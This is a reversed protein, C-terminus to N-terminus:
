GSKDVRLFMQCGTPDFAIRASAGSLGEALGLFTEETRLVLPWDLWYAMYTRSANEVHYNGVALTGGPALLDWLRALVARAVPGTLYDFLGMSYVFQFRGLREGLRRDKLMTRVSEDVLTARVPAGHAAAVTAATARAADLALPDQDLLTCELDRVDAASGFVDHLELAPGSAVSLFRFPRAGDGFRARVERLLGAVLARRARVAEAGPMEVAYKHLLKGFLTGGEYGNEYILQMMEADGAYGRPKLNTRRHIESSMLHPWALRRLFFGHRDHEEKTYGAVLEKLAREKERMFEIFQRGEAAIIAERTAAAVEPAEGDLLRDQEDFFRRYVSIEYVVNACFEKFEPRVRERQALVLPLSRFGATLQVVKGELALARCDYVADLFVLRGATEQAAGGEAVFRCRGLRARTEGLELEVMDLVEGDRLPREFSAALSVPSALTAVFALTGDGREAWGRRRPEAAARDSAASRSGAM